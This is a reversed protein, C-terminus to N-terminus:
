AWSFLCWQSTKSLEGVIIGLLMGNGAHSMWKYASIMLKSGPLIKLRVVKWIQCTHAVWLSCSHDFNLLSKLVNQIWLYAQRFIVMSLFMAGINSIAKFLNFISLTEAFYDITEVFAYFYIFILLVRPLLSHYDCIFHFNHIIADKNFYVSTVNPVSATWNSQWRYELLIYYLQLFLMCSNVFHIIANADGAAWTLPM